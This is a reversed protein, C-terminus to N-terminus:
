GGLLCGDLLLRSRLLSDSHFLCSGRLGGNELLGSRLFGTGNLLGLQSGLFRGDFLRDPGLQGSRLMRQELADDGVLVGPPVMGSVFRLVPNELAQELVLYDLLARLM